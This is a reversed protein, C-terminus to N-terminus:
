ICLSIMNSTVRPRQRALALNASADELSAALQRLADLGRMLTIRRTGFLAEVRGEVCRRHVWVGEVASGVPFVLWLDNLTCRQRCVRCCWLLRFADPHNVVQVM